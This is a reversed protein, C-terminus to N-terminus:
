TGTVSDRRLNGTSTSIHPKTPLTDASKQHVVVEIEHNLKELMSLLATISFDRFLGKSLNSLESKRIGLIKAAKSRRLRRKTIIDDIIFVLRCKALHEEPDAIELDRFINGSSKEVEIKEKNM